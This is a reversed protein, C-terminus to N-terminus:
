KFYHRDDGTTISSYAGDDKEWIQDCYKRALGVQDSGRLVGAVVHYDSSIKRLLQWAHLYINKNEEEDQYNILHDSTTVIICQAKLRKAYFPVHRLVDRFRHLLELEFVYIQQMQKLDIAPYFRHPDAFNACDIVIAPLHKAAHYFLTQNVKQWDNFVFANLAM